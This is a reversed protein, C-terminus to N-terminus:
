SFPKWRFSPGTIISGRFMETLLSCRIPHLSLRASRSSPRDAIAVSCRPLCVCVTILSLVVGSIPTIMIVAGYISIGLVLLALSLQLSRFILFNKPVKVVHSATVIPFRSKSIMARWTDMTPAQINRFFPMLTILRTLSIYVSPQGSDARTTSQPYYQLLVQCFSFKVFTPSQV